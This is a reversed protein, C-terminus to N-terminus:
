SYIIYETEITRGNSKIHTNIIGKKIKLFINELLFFRSFISFM